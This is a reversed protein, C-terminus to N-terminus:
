ENGFIEDLSQCTIIGTTESSNLYKDFLKRCKEINKLQKELKAYIEDIDTFHEHPQTKKPKPEVCSVIIYDLEDAHVQGIKQVYYGREALEKYLAFNNEYVENRYNEENQKGNLLHTLTNVEKNLREIEKEIETDTM